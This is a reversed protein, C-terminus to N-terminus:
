ATAVLAYETQEIRDREGDGSGRPYRIEAREFGHILALAHAVEPFIPARHTPDVWFTKFASLSHPNITEAVLVGGPRLATRAALFLRELQDYPLHEVVHIATVGGLSAAELRDLYAIGDDHEVDLGLRKARDVM